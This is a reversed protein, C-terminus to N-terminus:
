QSHKLLQGYLQKTDAVLRKESFRSLAFDRARSTMEKCVQDNKVLHLLGNVFGDVSNSNTGIGRECVTFGDDEERKRGLLDVVGGVSTAIVPRGSAMAEIVSLPTGENLSTLAVADLGPYINEVDTRNGLFYVKGDLGM